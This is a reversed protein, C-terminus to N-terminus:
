KKGGQFLPFSWCKTRCWFAKNYQNNKPLKRHLSFLKSNWLNLLQEADFQSESSPGQTQIFHRGSAKAIHSRPRKNAATWMSGFYIAFCLLQPPNWLRVAGVPWDAHVIRCDSAVGVRHGRMQMSFLASQVVWIRFGLLLNFVNPRGLTSSCSYETM